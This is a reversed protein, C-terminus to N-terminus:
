KFIQFQQNSLKVGVNKGISKAYRLAMYCDKLTNGVGLSFTISSSNNRIFFIIQKPELDSGKFIIGDAGAFIIEQRHQILFDKITDIICIVTHNIDFLEKENNEM